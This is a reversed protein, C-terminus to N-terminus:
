LTDKNPANNDNKNRVNQTTKHNKILTMIIIIFLNYKKQKINTYNNKDKSNNNSM